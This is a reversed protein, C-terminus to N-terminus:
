CGIFKEQDTEFVLTEQYSTSPDHEWRIELSVVPSPLFLKPVKDMISM